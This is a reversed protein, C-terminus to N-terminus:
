RRRRASPARHRATARTSCGSGDRRQATVRGADPQIRGALLALLTSKGDGNRGVVGIRDGENIGVTVSDFIVRTPYELHLSEAGLLHAMDIEIFSVRRDVTPRVTPCYYFFFFSARSASRACPGMDAAPAPLWFGEGGCFKFVWPVSGSADPGPCDRTRPRAPGAAGRRIRSFRQAAFGCPEDPTRATERGCGLSYSTLHTGSSSNSFESSGTATGQGGSLVVSTALHINDFVNLDKFYDITVTKGALKATFVNDAHATSQDDVFPTQASVVFSGHYQAVGNYDIAITCSQAPRAAAGPPPWRRWPARLAVGVATVM